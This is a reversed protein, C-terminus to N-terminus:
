NYKLFNSDKGFGQLVEKLYSIGREPDAWLVSRRKETVIERSEREGEVTIIERSEREGKVTIIERSEGEGELCDEEHCWASNRSCKLTQKLIQKMKSEFM